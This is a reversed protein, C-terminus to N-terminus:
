FDKQIRVTVSWTLTHTSIVAQLLRLAVLQDREVHAHSNFHLTHAHENGKVSTVSWTLTHTSIQLDVANPKSYITVSWTLTHTSIQIQTVYWAPM